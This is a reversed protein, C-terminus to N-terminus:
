IAVVRVSPLSRMAPLHLNEAGYGCGIVGVALVNRGTDTTTRVDLRIRARNGARDPFGHGSIVASRCTNEALSRSSSPPTTRPATDPGHIRQKHSFGSAHKARAPLFRSSH